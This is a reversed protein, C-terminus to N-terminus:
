NILWEDFVYLLKNQYNILEQFYDDNIEMKEKKM